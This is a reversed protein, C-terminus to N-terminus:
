GPAFADFLGPREGAQTSCGGFQVEAPLAAADGAFRTAKEM